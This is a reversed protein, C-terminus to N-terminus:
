HAIQALLARFQRFLTITADSNIEISGAHRVFGVPFQPVPDRLQLNAAHLLVPVADVVNAM